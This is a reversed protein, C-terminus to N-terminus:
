HTLLIKKSFINEKNYVSVIYVGDNIHTDLNYLNNGSIKSKIIAKATLDYIVIDSEQWNKDYNFVLKNGDSYININNTLEETSNINTIGEPIMFYISDSSNNIIWIGEGDYAIGNPYSGGPTKYSKLVSHTVPDIMNTSQSPNDNIWIYNGDYTIGTPFTGVAEFSINLTLQQSFSYTSDNATIPNSGKTDNYWFENGTYCLGTPYICSAINTLNFSDILIGLETYEFINKAINDLIFLNNDKFTIGYPKQISIPVTGVVNGTIPSVKYVVYDNYGTIWLFGNHFTISTPMTTPSAFQRLIPMIVANTNKTPIYNNVTQSDQETPIGMYDLSNQAFLGSSIVLVAFIMLIFKM